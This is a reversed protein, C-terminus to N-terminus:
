NVWGGGVDGNGEFDPESSWMYVFTRMTKSFYIIKPFLSYNISIVIILSIIWRTVHKKWSLIIQLRYVFVEKVVM